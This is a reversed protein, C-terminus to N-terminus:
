GFRGEVSLQEGTGVRLDHLRVTTGDEALTENLDVKRGVIARVHRRAFLLAFKVFLNRSGLALSRITIVADKTVEIRAEARASAILLKWRVGAYATARIGDAGDRVIELRLRGLHIGGERLIPGAVSEILPVLDKTAISAHFSGRLGDLDDGPAIAHASEPAGPNAPEAATLWLIPVDYAQLDVNLPSREIRMPRATFRFNKLIGSDRAIIEPEEPDAMDVAPPATPANRGLRLKTGTADLTLHELDYGSLDASVDIDEVGTLAVEGTDQAARRLTSRVWRVVTASDGPWATTM